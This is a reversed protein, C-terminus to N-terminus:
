NIKWRLKGSNSLSYLTDAGFYINGNYDITPETNDWLTNAIFNFEWNIAGESNISYLKRYNSFWQSGLDSSCVDSSWDCQYVEYATKQKFFFVIFM